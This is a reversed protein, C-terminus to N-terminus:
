IKSSTYVTSIKNKFYTGPSSSNRLAYYIVEPVDEYKYKAGKKFTIYLTGDEWGVYDLNSSNIPYMPTPM